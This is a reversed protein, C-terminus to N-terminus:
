TSNLEMLKFSIGAMIPYSSILAIAREEISLECFIAKRKLLFSKTFHHKIM